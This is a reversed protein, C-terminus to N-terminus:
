AATAHSFSRDFAAFAPPFAESGVEEGMGATELGAEAATPLRPEEERGATHVEHAGM